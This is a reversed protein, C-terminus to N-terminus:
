TASDAHATGGAQRLINHWLDSQHVVFKENNKMAIIRNASEKTKEGNYIDAKDALPLYLHVLNHISREYRREITAEPINHGCQSVRMRVRSKAVFASPLWVYFLGFAYGAAKAQKIKAAFGHSAGTTEFSFNTRSAILRDIRELMIRGAAVAQGDANLPNLGRAIEDANVFEYISFFDPMTSLALTTKGAGNPGAIMYLVPQTM